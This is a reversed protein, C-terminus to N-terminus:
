TLEDETRLTECERALRREITRLDQLERAVDQRRETADIRALLRDLEDIRSVLQRGLLTAEHLTLDLHM